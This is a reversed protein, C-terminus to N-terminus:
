VSEIGVSEISPCVAARGQSVCAAEVELTDHAPQQLRAEDM